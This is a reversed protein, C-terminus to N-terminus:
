GNQVEAFYKQIQTFKMHGITKARSARARYLTALSIGTAASVEKLNAEKLKKVVDCHDYQWKGSSVEWAHVAGRSVVEARRQEEQSRPERKRVPATNLLLNEPVLRTAWWEFADLCGRDCGHVVFWEFAIEGWVDWSAQLPACHHNRADLMKRHDAFRRRINAAQGIYTQGTLRNRIAYIGSKTESM